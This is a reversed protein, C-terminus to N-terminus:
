RESRLKFAGPESAKQAGGGTFILEGALSECLMRYEEKM